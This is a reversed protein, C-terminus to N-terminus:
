IARVHARVTSPALRQAIENGISAGVARAEEPTPIVGDFNVQIAGSEFTITAGSDLTGIARRIAEQARPDGLPLALEPQGHESIMSPGRALAGEQLMPIRSLSFPLLNDLGEIGANIKGIFRNLGAKVSATIDGAVDGIFNKAMRFGGVFSSILAHGADAFFSGLGKLRNPIETFANVMSDASKEAFGLLEGIKRAVGDLFEGWVITGRALLAIFIGLGVALVAFVKIGVEALTIMDSLFQKGVDSTFFETMQDFIETLLDLLNRGGEVTETTFLAGFLGAVSRLLGFLSDLSEMVDDLFTQFSGDAIKANIFDSIKVLLIAFRDSLQRVFPLSATVLRLISDSIAVLAPRLFELIQATTGFVANITEIGAPSRALELFGAILMGMERATLRLGEALAPIVQRALPAFEGLLEGTFAEQVGKAVDKLLQFVQTLERALQFTNPGLNLKALAEALQQADGGESLLKVAEGLDKFGLVVPVIAAALVSLFAPLTALFGTGIQALVAALSIVAGILPIAAIVIATFLVPVKSLSDRVSGVADGLVGFAKSMAGSVNRGFRGLTSDAARSSVAVETAMDRAEDGIEEIAERAVRAGPEIHEELARGARRAAVTINDELDKAISRLEVELRAMEVRLQARVERAFGSFDPVIEIHATELPQTM